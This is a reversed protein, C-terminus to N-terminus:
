EFVIPVAKKMTIVCTSYNGQTKPLHLHIFPKYLIPINLKMSKKTIKM